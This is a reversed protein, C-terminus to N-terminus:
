VGTRPKKTGRIQAGITSLNYFDVQQNKQIFCEIQLRYFDFVNDTLVMENGVGNVAHLQDHNLKTRRIVGEAHSYEKPYALDVGILEIRQAGLHVAAEMAFLSVTGGGEWTDMKHEKCIELVRRDESVPAFFVPGPYTEKLRWYSFFSLLLPIDGDGIGEVQEFVLESSELIVILDPKIKEDLLKRAITGVVIITKKGVCSHLYDMNLDVSPGGAVVIVDSRMKGRLDQWTQFAKKTNKFFNISLNRGEEMSFHINLSLRKLEEIGALTHTALQFKEIYFNEKKEDILRVFDYPTSDIHIFIQENPIKSLVGYKIGYELLENCYDFMHITVSQNSLEYLQYALYGMGVGWLYYETNTPKYIKKAIEYAEQMPDYPSYIYKGLLEDYVTLYGSQSSVLRWRGDSVDIKGFLGVFYYMLPLVEDKIMDGMAICGNISPTMRYIREIWEKVRTDAFADNNYIETLCHCHEEWQLLAEQKNNVQCIRNIKHLQTIYDSYYYIEELWEEAM